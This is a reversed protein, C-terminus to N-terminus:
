ERIFVLEEDDSMRAIVSPEGMDKEMQRHKVVYDIGVIIASSIEGFHRPHPQQSVHAPVAAVPKGFDTLLSLCFNDHPIRFAASGDPGLASAPLNIGEDYIVTLPRTHYLLLTDVRPHIRKVYSKLMDMSSALMIFPDEANLQCLDKIRQVADPNTADCGICWVTDTPYLILGGSELISLLPELTYNQVMCTNQNTFTQMHNLHQNQYFKVLRVVNLFSYRSIEGAIVSM